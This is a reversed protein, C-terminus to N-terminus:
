PMAQNIWTVHAYACAHMSDSVTDIPQGGAVMPTLHHDTWLKGTDHDDCPTCDDMDGYALCVFMFMRRTLMANAYMSLSSVHTFTVSMLRMTDVHTHLAVRTRTFMVTHEMSQCSAGFMVCSAHCMGCAVHCSACAVHCMVMVCAGCMGEGRTYEGTHCCVGAILVSTYLVADRALMQWLTHLYSRTRSRALRLPPPRHDAHLCRPVLTDLPHPAHCSVVVHCSMVHCSMVSNRSQLDLASREDHEM